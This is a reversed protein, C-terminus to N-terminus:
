GIELMILHYEILLSINEERHTLHGLKYFMEYGRVWISERDTSLVSTLLRLSNSLTQKREEIWERRRLAHENHM